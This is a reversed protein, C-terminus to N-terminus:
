DAVPPWVWAFGYCWNPVLQDFTHEYASSAPPFINEDLPHEADVVDPGSFKWVRKPNYPRKFEARLSLQQNGDAAHYRLRPVAREPSSVHLTLAILYNEDDSPSITRDLQLFTQIAGTDSERCELLSAGADPELRLVGRRTDAPYSFGAYCLATDPSLARLAVKCIVQNICGNSDFLYTANNFVVSYHRQVDQRTLEPSVVQPPADTPEITLGRRRANAALRSAAAAQSLLALLEQRHGGAIGVYADILEHSPVACGREVLSIHPSSYFPHQPDPKPIQRTTLGAAERMRHLARGLRAHAESIPKMPSGSM